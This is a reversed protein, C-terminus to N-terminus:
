ASVCGDMVYTTTLTTLQRKSLFTLFVMEIQYIKHSPGSRIKGLKIPPLSSSTRKWLKALMAEYLSLMVRVMLKMKIESDTTIVEARRRYTEFSNSTGRVFHEAVHYGILRGSM